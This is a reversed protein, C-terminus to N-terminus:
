SGSLSYVCHTKMYDSLNEWEYTLLGCTGLVNAKNKRLDHFDSGGSYPIGNRICFDRIVRIYTKTHNPHYVEFGNVPIKTLEDFSIGPQYLGPHALITIGGAARIICLAEDFDMRVKSIYAPKGDGIFHNFAEQFTKVHGAAMLARALHPRGFTVSERRMLEEPLAIAAGLAELRESMKLIREYRIRQYHRLGANLEKDNPDFGYALLHFGNGRYNVSLEVGPVALGKFHERFEGFGDITDHDALAAIHISRRALMDAIQAPTYEGDSATSHIHLDAILQQSHDPNAQLKSFYIAM